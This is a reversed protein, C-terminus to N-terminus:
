TQASQEAVSNFEDGRLTGSALGQSLQILANKAEAAGAGSVRLANNLAGTVQLLEQQSTGTGKTAAQLRVFLESTADLSAHTGRAIEGLQGLIANAEEQSETYLGIRAALQNYQDSLGILEKGMGALDSALNRAFSLSLLYNTLDQLGGSATKQSKEGLGDISEALGNIGKQADAADASIKIKLDKDAM